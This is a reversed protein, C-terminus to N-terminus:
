VTDGPILEVPLITDTELPKGPNQVLLDVATRAVERWPARITTLQYPPKIISDWGDFGVVAVDRPVQMGKDRLHSIVGHAMEDHWCVIASPRDRPADEGPRRSSEGWNLFETEAESVVSDDGRGLRPTVTMGLERAAACFASYRRATSSLNFPCIGYLIHRHGKGALLEAQMRSGNADDVTVSPLGPHPDSIIIIPLHSAELRDILNPQKGTLVILGDVKGNMLEAYIDDISTGRFTGHVLFDHRNLECGQQLGSIIEGLFMNRVDVFGGMYFGIIHTKGGRLSRALANPRYQLAEAAEVIRQRTAASVRTNGQGGSLVISATVKNVGAREAVQTLTAAKVM